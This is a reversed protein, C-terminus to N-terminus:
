KNIEFLLIGRKGIVLNDELTVNSENIVDYAINSDGLIERYHELHISVADFNKNFAAMVIKKENYRFFVYVGNSPAFHMLNGTHVVEKNKRWNLINKIFRKAKIQNKTLGEENFANVEDSLWGGPFDERISGHSDNKNSLLVETGYYFQPIGRMTAYYVIGMKYLDFDNKVQKYFRNMDHNDPFIVLNNPDNYNVDSALIEYAHIWGSNWNEPETLAKRLSEQLPFDMLSPLYSTYGNKNKKGLQWYSVISPNTSWEEGVINFSPYQSMIARTWDTMFDKDPYPYTDMRIGNIGAYEIWWLTNQILYQALLKNKQNLDPMTSVFWGEEFVKKDYKSAYPDQQTTRMHSTQIFEGQNNIWNDMPPDKVFWHESGSHNLIMDMIIKVGKANAIENLSKYQENSGYRSDVKYFDTISYGHYSFSPMNNELIPNLWIATFGLDKIYDISKIIGEIDGGHRGHENNRDVSEKMDKISDNSYDGNVFRDPTILYIADSSDFGKRSVNFDREKLEYNITKLKVDNKYFDIPVFSAAAQESITVSLFLYNPNKVTQVSSLKVGQHSIKPSFNSINPGYILIQVVNNEMGVWWNPPEVKDIKQANLYFFCVSAISFSILAKSQFIM